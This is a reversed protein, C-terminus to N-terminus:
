RAPPTARLTITGSSNMQGVLGGVSAVGLAAAPWPRDRLFRNGPSGHNTAEFRVALLPTRVAVGVPGTDYSNVLGYWGYNIGVLGGVPDSQAGSVSGTSFVNVM